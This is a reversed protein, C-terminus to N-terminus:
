GFKAEHATARFRSTSLANRPTAAIPAVKTIREPPISREIPETMAKVLTSTAASTSCAPSWGSAAMAIPSAAPAPNPVSCPQSTSYKSSGGNRTVSAPINKARPAANATCGWDSPIAAGKTAVVSM